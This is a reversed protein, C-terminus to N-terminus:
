VLKRTFLSVLLLLIVFILIIEVWNTGTGINLNQYRSTTHVIGDSDLFETRILIHYDGSGTYPTLIVFDKSVKQTPTFVSLSINDSGNVKFGTPPVVSILVNSLDENGVNEVTISLRAPDGPAIGEPELESTVQMPFKVVELFISQLRLSTQSYYVTAPIDYTMIETETNTAINFSTSYHGRGDLKNLSINKSLELDSNEIIVSIDDIRSIGNNTISITVEVSEGQYIKSDDITLTGSITQANVLGMMFILSFSILLGNQLKKRM